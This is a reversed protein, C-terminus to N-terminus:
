PICSPIVDKAPWIINYQGVYEPNWFRSLHRQGSDCIITVVTHGPGMAKAHLCAGVVNLASSSGVFLGEERLLWHAMDIVMQDTVKYATDIDAKDFNATIRDLGVGEVISDYRHRRITREAQEPTFCVGHAVKNFLSSGNPDALAITVKRRGVNAAQEKLFTSVGAITGGTGASMVFADVSGQTQQWIEPGTETYHAMFNATNEFQNMFVGGLEDALIRAQNVYHKKNSIAASPVIKVHAGLGELLSKKEDAQDDPLVVHLPVDMANCLCALSIGTSGSTGEVVPVGKTLRSKAAELMYKSARDKGTGGPNMCEMKVLVRCGVLKSLKSLEVMPTKGVLSAYASSGDKGMRNWEDSRDGNLAYMYACGALLGVGASFGAVLVLQSHQSHSASM